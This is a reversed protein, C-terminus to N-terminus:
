VHVCTHVCVTTKKGMEYIGRYELSMEYIEGCERSFGVAIFIQRHVTYYVLCM